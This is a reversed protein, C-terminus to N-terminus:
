LNGMRDESHSTVTEGLLQDDMEAQMGMRSLDLWWACEVIEVLRVVKSTEGDQNRKLRILEGLVSVM